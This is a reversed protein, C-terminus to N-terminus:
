GQGLASMFGDTMVGFGREQTAVIFNSGLFACSNVTLDTM